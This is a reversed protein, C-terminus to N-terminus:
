IKCMNKSERSQCRMHARLLNLFTHLDERDLDHRAVLQCSVCVPRSEHECSKCLIAHEVIREFTVPGFAELLLKLKSVVLSDRSVKVNIAATQQHFRELEPIRERVLSDLNSQLADIMQTHKDCWQRIEEDMDTALRLSFVNGIFRLTTRERANHTQFFLSKFVDCRYMILGTPVNTM